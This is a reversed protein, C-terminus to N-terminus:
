LRGERPIMMDGAQTNDMSGDSVSKESAVLYQRTLPIVKSSITLTAIRFSRAANLSKGIKADPSSAWM